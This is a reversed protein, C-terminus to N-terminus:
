RLLIMKMNKQYAGAQIRYFYVGSPVGTANWKTSHYGAPLQSEVLSAVEQGASNFVKLTVFSSAPLHFAITTAPNFPNPYNQELSFNGPPRRNASPEEVSTAMESLPRRWVGGDWFSAFLNTGSVVLADIRNRTSPLGDSVKTWSRGNDTTLFIGCCETGVFLNTDNVALAYICNYLAGYTVGKSIETWSAGNDTSLSVGGPMYSWDVTTGAYLNSGSVALSSVMTSQLGNNVNTWSTGNDTSLFIGGGDAEHYYDGAGAFLNVGSVVLATIGCNATMGVDTWSTGSNTSLFVEGGIGPSTGAFLNTESAALSLIHTNTLGNNIETWNTDINNSLFVGSGDTGAFLNSGNVVLAKIPNPLEKNVLTWNEGNNDSYFVGGQYTGAFLKLGGVAFTIVDAYTMSTNVATWSTGNNTSLFIGSTTGAFLNTGSGDAASSVALAHVDHNGLGINVETWSTENWSKGNDTSKHGLHCLFVGESTGAFLNTGFGDSTPSVALANISKNMLEINVETWNTGNDTSRFVGKGTGAFLYKDSEVMQSFGSFPIPAPFWSEGNDTSLFIGEDGKVAFVNSGSIALSGFNGICKKKWSKGKDTSLYIGDLTGAILNTDSVAIDQVWIDVLGSNVWNTGNNTSLFIGGWKTAAFICSDIVALSTVSHNTLGINAETWCKGNDTSLFVGDDNTGAFINTGKVAFCSITGGYYPGNTQVWQAQSPIQWSLFTALSLTLQLTRTKM